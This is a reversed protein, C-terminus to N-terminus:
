VTIREAVYEDFAPSTQLGAGGLRRAAPVMAMLQQEFLVGPACRVLAQRQELALAQWENLGIKRGCGDLKYRVALPLWQLERAEAPEFDFVRDPQM